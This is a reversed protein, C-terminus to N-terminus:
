SGGTHFASFTITNTWCLVHVARHSAYPNGHLCLPLKKPVANDYIQYGPEPTLNYMQLGQSLDCKESEPFYVNEFLAWIQQVILDFHHSTSM